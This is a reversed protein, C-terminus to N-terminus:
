KGHGQLVQRVQRTAVDIIRVRSGDGVALSRGDPSFAVHRCLGDTRGLNHKMGTAIDWLWVVPPQASDGAALHRCDPAPGLTVVLHRGDPSHDLAAVQGHCDTRWTVQRDVDHVEVQCDRRCAELLVRDSSVIRTFPSWPGEKPRLSPIDLEWL